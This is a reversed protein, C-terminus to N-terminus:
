FNGLGPSSSLYNLLLSQQITAWSTINSSEFCVRIKEFLHIVGDDRTNERGKAELVYNSRAITDNIGLFELYSSIDLKKKTKSNKSVMSDVKIM